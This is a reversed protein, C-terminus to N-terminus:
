GDFGTWDLAKSFVPGLLAYEGRCWLHATSLSKGIVRSICPIKQASGLSYFSELPNFPPPHLVRIWRERLDPGM